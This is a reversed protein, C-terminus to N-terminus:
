GEEDREVDVHVLVEAREEIALIADRVGDSTAHAEALLTEGPLEVHVEVFLTRGALRTRLAHYGRIEGRERMGRLAGEIAAVREESAGTDILDRVGDHLLGAASRLVYAAVAISLAGDIRAIGTAYSIAVGALVALNSAIDMRYHVSDAKLALSGTREVARGLYAVLAATVLTAVVMAGLTVAAMRLPEPTISRRVGEVLLYVGSGGILLGQGATALAEIKGHGFPHSRDPAAHALHIAVANASSAFVDMLSDVASATVAISHGLQGAVLKGVALGGAAMAAVRSARRAELALASARARRDQPRSSPTSM